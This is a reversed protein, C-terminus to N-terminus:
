DPPVLGLQRISPQVSEPPLDAGYRRYEDYEHVMHYLYDTAGLPSVYEDMKLPLLYPQGEIDVYGYETITMGKSPIYNGVQYPLTTKEVIKRIKGTQDEVWIEGSTPLAPSPDRATGDAKLGDVFQVGSRSTFSFIELPGERRGTPVIEHGQQTNLLSSIDSGFTPGHASVKHLKKKSPKGNFTLVRTNFFTRGEVFRAEAEHWKKLSWKDYPSSRRYIWESYVCVFNPLDQVYSAAYELIDEVTAAKVQPSFTITLFLVVLRLYVQITM